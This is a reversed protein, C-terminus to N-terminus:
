KDENVSDNHYPNDDKNEHLDPLFYAEEGYKEQLYRILERSKVLEAQLNFEEDEKDHQTEFPSVAITTDDSWGRSKGKKDIVKEAARQGLGPNEKHHILNHRIVYEALDLDTETNYGRVDKIIAAAEPNRKMYQYMTERCVGIERAIAAINGHYIYFFKKIDAIDPAFPQKSM